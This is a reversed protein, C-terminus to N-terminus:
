ETIRERVCVVCMYVHMCVCVCGDGTALGFQALGEDSLRQMAVDPEPLSPEPTATRCCVFSVRDHSM